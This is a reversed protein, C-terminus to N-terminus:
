SLDFPKFYKRKVMCGNKPKVYEHLGKTSTTDIKNRRHVKSLFPAVEFTVQRYNGKGTNLSPNARVKAKHAKIRRKNNRSAM